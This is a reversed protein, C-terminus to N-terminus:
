DASAAECPLPPPSRAGFGHGSQMRQPPKIVPNSGGQRRILKHAFRAQRRGSLPIFSRAQLSTLCEYRARQGPLEATSCGSRLRYTTPEFGVRPVLFILSKRYEVVLGSPM